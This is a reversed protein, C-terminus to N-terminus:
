FILKILRVVVKVTVSRCYGNPLPWFVHTKGDKIILRMEAPLEADTKFQFVAYDVSPAVEPFSSRTIRRAASEHGEAGILYNAKYDLIKDIQMKLHAIAYGTTGEMLRDVSVKLADEEEIFRVRNNWLSKHGKEQLKEVLINKLTSQSIVALFPYKLPLVSYDVMAKEHDDEYIGVKKIRLANELVRDTVKISDLVELTEPHLALAYSHTNSGTSSCM